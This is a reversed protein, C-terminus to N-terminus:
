QLPDIEKLTEGTRAPRWNDLLEVQHLEAWALAISAPM